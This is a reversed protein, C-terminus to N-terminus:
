QWGEEAAHIAEKIRQHARWASRFCIGAFILSVGSIFIGGLSFRTLTAAAFIAVAFGMGTYGTRRALLGDRADGQWYSGVLAATASISLTAGYLREFTESLQAEVSASTSSGLAIALGNVACWALIFVRFEDRPMGIPDPKLRGWLRRM